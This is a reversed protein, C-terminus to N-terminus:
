FLSCQILFQVLHRARVAKLVGESFMVLVYMCGTSTVNAGGRSFALGIRCTEPSPGPYTYFIFANSEAFRGGFKKWNLEMFSIGNARFARM